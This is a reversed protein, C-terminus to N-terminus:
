RPVYFDGSPLWFGLIIKSWGTHEQCDTITFERKRLYICVRIHNRFSTKFHFHMTVLLVLVFKKQTGPLKVKCSFSLKGETLATGLQSRSCITSDGQCGYDGVDVNTFMVSADCAATSVRSFKGKYNYYKWVQHSQCSPLTQWRNGWPLKSCELNELFWWFSKTM